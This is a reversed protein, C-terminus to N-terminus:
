EGFSVFDVVSYDRFCSNLWERGYKEQYDSISSFRYDYMDKTNNHKVPNQHIYNLRIYFDKKSRICKDWYQYWVQRGPTKDLKNLNIASKGNVFQIIKNIPFESQLLLHYHNVLIVYGFLKINFKIRAKKVVSWLLNKKENNNFHNVMKITRCTIFYVKDPYYLHPPHYEKRM